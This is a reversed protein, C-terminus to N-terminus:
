KKFSQFDRSMLTKRGDRRAFEIAEDCAKRIIDSLIESVDGSTNMDSKDKVYQKLKSVVVLIEQDMSSRGQSVISKNQDSSPASAVIIRRPNLNLSQDENLLEAQYDAFTPSKKEVAGADRHRAGPLHREWCPVSCFVYGTRKGTCTSVNCEFYKTSYLISKKCSSCLRWYEHQATM